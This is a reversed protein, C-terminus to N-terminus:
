VLHLVQCKAKGLRMLNLPFWMEIKDLDKQVVDRGETKRVAGSLKIDNAFKSLTCEIGNDLDSISINFVVLRLISGQLIDKM